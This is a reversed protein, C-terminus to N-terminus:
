KARSQSILNVFLRYAGANGEPLQRFFELAAYIYVGKGYRTWVLSGPLDSEGPDHMSLVAQYHLDFSSWLYNAREQVWNKFDDETIKNPFNLLPSDPALFKVDATEDTIRLAGGPTQAPYPAITTWNNDRQYQVVLTGGANVYDLLRQHNAMVDGRLDYARIGIVIADFKHLDGFTLAAQDLMEVPVGLRALAAPMMDIDAAVYGVRLNPPIVVNFAHVPAVAPESWLWAPYSPLPALSTRFTEAGRKAWAKIEYKGSALKEPPTITFRVLADGGAAVDVEQAAPTRWGEPLDVGASVHVAAASYSHVLALVEQPKRPQNVAIIYQNPELTLGVAPVLRLSETIVTTPTARQAMVETDTDFGYGEINAHARAFVLPVPFPLMWDALGHPEPAGAPITVKLTTVGNQDQAPQDAHWGEPLVLTPAAFEASAIQDRHQQDARVTFSEGAVLNGRDSQAFVRIGAAITLARDIREREKALEYEADPVQAHSRVSVQSELDAINKGAGALEHVTKPWDLNQAAIRARELALDTEVLKQKMVDALAPFRAPLSGIPLNLQAKDFASGDPKMLSSPRRLFANVGPSFSFAVVGQSRQSAFGDRSIENYSKGWIPSIDNVPLTVSSVATDAQGGRGGGGGQQLLLDVHWAKLGNTLQDPFVNPDAAAEVAKPTLFGSAQHNGHGTRTSGWGNIVVNPRYTRIVQVMDRLATDGWIRLTEEMTKSFGFDPARTFFLKVGYTQTAAQLEASRIIGLQNGQEPGIANQGGQGRTITLLAVDDGFARALYTLTGSAEDDPHATIFLVRTAVRARQIAELAHPLSQGNPDISPRQAFAPLALASFLATFALVRLSIRLSTRTIKM